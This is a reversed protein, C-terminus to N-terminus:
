IITSRNVPNNNFKIPVPNGQMWHKELADLEDLEPLAERLM